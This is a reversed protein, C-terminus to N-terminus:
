KDEVVLVHFDKREAVSLSTENDPASGLQPSQIGLSSSRDQRHTRFAATTEQPTQPPTSSAFDQDSACGSVSMESQLRDPISDIDIM